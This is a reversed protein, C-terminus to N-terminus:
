VSKDAHSWIYPPNNFLRIARCNETQQLITFHLYLVFRTKTKGNKKIEKTQVKEENNNKYLEPDKLCSYLHIQKM